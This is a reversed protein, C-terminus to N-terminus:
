RAIRQLWMDDAAKIEQKELELKIKVTVDSFKDEIKNVKLSLKILERSVRESLNQMAKTENSQRKLEICKQEIYIRYQMLKSTTDMKFDLLETRSKEELEVICAGIEQEKTKSKNLLTEIKNYEIKVSEVNKKELSILKALANQKKKLAEM